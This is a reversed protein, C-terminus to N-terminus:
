GVGCRTEESFALDCLVAAFQPIIEQFRLLGSLSKGLRENEINVHESFVLCVKLPACAVPATIGLLRHFLM